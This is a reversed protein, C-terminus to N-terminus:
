LGRPGKAPGIAERKMKWRADAQAKRAQYRSRVEDMEEHLKSVEAGMEILRSDTIMVKLFNKMYKERREATVIPAPVDPFPPNVWASSVQYSFACVSATWYTDGNSDVQGIMGGGNTCSSGSISYSSAFDYPSGWGSHLSVYDAVFGPQCTRKMIMSGPQLSVEGCVVDYEHNKNLKNYRKFLKDEADEIRRSLSKGYVWIEELQQPEAAAQTGSADAARANGALFACLTAALVMCANSM